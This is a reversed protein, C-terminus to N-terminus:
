EGDVFEQYDQLCEEIWIEFKEDNNGADESFYFDNFCYAIAEDSYNSLQKWRQKLNPIAYKILEALRKKDTHIAPSFM